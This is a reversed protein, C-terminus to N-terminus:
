DKAVIFEEKVLEYEKSFNESKLPTNQTVWITDGIKLNESNGNDIVEYHRLPYNENAIFFGSDTKSEKLELSKVIIYKGLGKM